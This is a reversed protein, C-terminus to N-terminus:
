RYHEALQHLEEGVEHLHRAISDLRDAPTELEVAYQEVLMEGFTALFKPGLESLTELTLRQAKADRNFNGPDKGLERAASEQKGYSRRCADLVLASLPEQGRNDRLQAKAPIPRASVFSDDPTTLQAEAVSTKM